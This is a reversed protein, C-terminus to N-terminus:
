GARAAIEAAAASLQALHREVVRAEDLVATLWVCNVCALVSAGRMVPVAIASVHRRSGVDLVGYSADRVAYGRERTTRLLNSIQV